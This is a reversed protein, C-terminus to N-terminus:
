EKTEERILATKDTPLPEKEIWAKNSKKMIAWTTGLVHKGGRPSQLFRLSEHLFAYTPIFSVCEVCFWYLLVKKQMFPHLVRFRTLDIKGHEYLSQFTHHTLEELFAETQQLKELTNFFTKTFRADTKELTPIVDERIRNRLYDKSQNTPDLTYPITHEKLYALIDTKFLGLLPRIYLGAKPKIGTLGTLSAGRVMRMFFTEMQDNKHHGLAISQASHERAIAELFRRRIIRGVEERSGRADSPCLYQCAHGIIFPIDLSQATSSAVVQDHAADPRWGHNLHAAIITCEYTPALMALAHILFVSDPGGSLGVVVTDNKKILKYTDILAQVANIPGQSHM